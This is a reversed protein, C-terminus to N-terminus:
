CTRNTLSIHNAASPILIHTLVCSPSSHDPRPLYSFPVNFIQVSSVQYWRVLLEREPNGFFGGMDAGAFPIGAVGITLLMPVSYELHDWAATNDGTWIAGYKQTGSFFARSLVFPREVGGSRRRIGEATAAQQWMGYINHVDRHEWGSPKDIIKICFKTM